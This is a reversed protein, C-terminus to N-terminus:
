CVSVDLYIQANFLFANPTFLCQWHNKFIITVNNENWYLVNGMYKFHGSWHLFRGHWASLMSPMQSEAQGSAVAAAACTEPDDHPQTLLLPLCLSLWASPCAQQTSGQWTGTSHARLARDGGKESSALPVWKEQTGGEWICSSLIGQVSSLFCVQQESLSLDPSLPSLDPLFTFKWFSSFILWQSPRTLPAPSSAWCNPAGAARGSPRLEPGADM